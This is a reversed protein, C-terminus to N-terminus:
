KDYYSERVKKKTYVVTGISVGVFLVFLGINLVAAYTMGHYRFLKILNTLAIGELVFGIMVVVYRYNLMDFHRGIFVEIQSVLVSLFPLFLLAMYPNVAAEDGAGKCYGILCAIGYVGFYTFMRRFVDVVVIDKIFESFRNSSQLFELSGNYKGYLSGMFWHDMMPEAIWLIVFVIMLALVFMEADIEAFVFSIVFTLLPIMLFVIAKYGTKTFALYSKWAKLM